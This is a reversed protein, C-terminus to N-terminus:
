QFIAFVAWRQPEAGLGRAEKRSSYPAKGESGPNGGAAPLEAELGGGL